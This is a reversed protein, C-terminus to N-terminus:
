FKVHHVFCFIECFVLHECRALLLQQNLFFVFNVIKCFLVANKGKETVVVFKIEETTMAQMPTTEELM